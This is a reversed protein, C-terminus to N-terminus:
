PQGGREWDETDDTSSGAIMDAIARGIAELGDIRAKRGTKVKEVVGTFRGAKDRTLRVVFTMM